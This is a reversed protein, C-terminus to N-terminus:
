NQKKRMTRCYGVNTTNLYSITMLTTPAPIARVTKKTRVTLAISL